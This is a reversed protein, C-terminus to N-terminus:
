FDTRNSFTPHFESEGSKSFKGLTFTVGSVPKITKFISKQQTHEGAEDIL